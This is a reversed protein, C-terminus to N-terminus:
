GTPLWPLGSSHTRALLQQALPITANPIKFVHSYSPLLVWFIAWPIAYSLGETIGLKQSSAVLTVIALGFLGMASPDANVIKVKTQSDTQM